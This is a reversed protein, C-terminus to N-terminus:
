VLRENMMTVHRYYLGCEFQNTQNELADEVIRGTLSTPLLQSVRRLCLSVGFRAFDLLILQNGTWWLFSTRVAIPSDVM